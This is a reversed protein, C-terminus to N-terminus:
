TKVLVQKGSEELLEEDEHEPFMIEAKLGEWIGAKWKVGYEWGFRVSLHTPFPVHSREQFPSSRNNTAPLYAFFFIAIRMDSFSSILNFLDLQLWLIPLVRHTCTSLTNWLPCHLEKISKTIMEVVFLSPCPHTSLLFLQTTWPCFECNFLTTFQLFMQSPQKM